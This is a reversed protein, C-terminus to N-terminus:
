KRCPVALISLHGTAIDRGSLHTIAPKLTICLRDAERILNMYISLAYIRKENEEHPAMMTALYRHMSSM